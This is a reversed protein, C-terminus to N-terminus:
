PAAAISSHVPMSTSASGMRRVRFSIKPAQYTRPRHPHACACIIGLHDQTTTPLAVGIWGGGLAKYVVIASLLRTLASQAAADQVAYFQQQSELVPLFGTEGEQYRRQAENLAQRDEDVEAAITSDRQQAAAEDALADEV